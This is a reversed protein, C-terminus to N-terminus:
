EEYLLYAVEESSIRRGVTIVPLGSVPDTSVEAPEGLAALGRAALDAVVTSLSQRRERSIETVRRHLAPPLDTTTRM